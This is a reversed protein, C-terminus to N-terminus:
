KIDILRPKKEEPIVRELQISLMGDKLSGGKVVIDDALTFKRTFNRTAIGRYLKDDEDKSEKVSKISLVGEAVEVEIDDKNKRLKIPKKRSYPTHKVYFLRLKLKKLASMMWARNISKIGDLVFVFSANFIVLVSFIATVFAILRIGFYGFIKAGYFSIFDTVSLAIKGHAAVVRTVFFSDVFTQFSLLFVCLFIFYSRFTQNRNILLSVSTFFLLWPLLPLADGFLFYSLKQVYYGFPGMLQQGYLCFFLIVGIALQAVFVVDLNIDSVPVAQKKKKTSVRKM